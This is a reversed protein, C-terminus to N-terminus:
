KLQVDKVVKFIKIKAAFSVYMFIDNKCLILQGNTNEVFCFM